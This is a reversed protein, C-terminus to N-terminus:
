PKQMRVLFLSRQEDGFIVHIGYRHYVPFIYQKSDYRDIVYDIDDDVLLSFVKKHQRSYALVLLHAAFERCQGFFAAM